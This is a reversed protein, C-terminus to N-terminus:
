ENTDDRPQVTPYAGLRAAGYFTMQDAALDDRMQHVAWVQKLAQKAAKSFDERALAKLLVENEKRGITGEANLLRHGKADIIGASVLVEMMLSAEKPAVGRAILAEVSLPREPIEHVEVYGGRARLWNVALRQHAPDVLGDNGAIVFFLPPIPGGTEIYKASPQPVPGMYNAIGTVPLGAAAAAIGFFSAMGGGNSMGHTFVPTEAEIRGEEILRRYLAFLYDLDPNAATEPHTHRWKGLVGKEPDHRDLSQPSVMAYGSRAMAEVIAKNGDRAAFQANGTSGHFIFVLAEPAEEPFYALYPRGEFERVEFDPQAASVGCCCFLVAIFATFISGGKM